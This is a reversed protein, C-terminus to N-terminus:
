NEMNEENYLSTLLSPALTKLKYFISVATGWAVGTCLHSGKKFQLQVIPFNNHIEEGNILAFTSTSFFIIILIFFYKKLNNEGLYKELQYQDIKNRYSRAM